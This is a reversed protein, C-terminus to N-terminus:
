VITKAMPGAPVPLVCTTAANALAHAACRAPRTMPSVALVLAALTIASSAAFASAGISVNLM